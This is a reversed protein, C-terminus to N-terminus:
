EAESIFKMVDTLNEKQKKLKALLLLNSVRRWLLAGHIPKFLYDSAGAAMAKDIAEKDTRATLFLVPLDRTFAQARLLPCAEVGGMIPMEYDLICLDFPAMIAQQVAAKGDNVAVVEAGHASLVEVLLECLEPQDDAVLIRPASEANSM